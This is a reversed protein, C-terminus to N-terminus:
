RRLGSQPRRPRSEFVAKIAANRATPRGNLANVLKMSKWDPTCKGLVSGDGADTLSAETKRYTQVRALERAEAASPNATDRCRIEYGLAGAGLHSANLETRYQPADSRLTYSFVGATAWDV